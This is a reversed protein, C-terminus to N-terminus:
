SRRIKEDSLCKILVEPNDRQWIHPNTSIKRSYNILALIVHHFFYRWDLENIRSGGKSELMRLLHIFLAKWVGQEFEHMLDVALM